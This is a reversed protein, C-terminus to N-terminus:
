PRRVALIVSFDLPQLANQRIMIRFASGEVGAIDLQREHQAGKSVLRTASQWDAAIPKRERLLAEIEPDSYVIEM